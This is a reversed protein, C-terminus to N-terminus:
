ASSEDAAVDRLRSDLAGARRMAGLPDAYLGGLSVTGAGAEQVRNGFATFRIDRAALVSGAAFAAKVHEM